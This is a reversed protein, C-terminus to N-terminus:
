LKLYGFGVEDLNINKFFNTVKSCHTFVGIAIKCSLIGLVWKM